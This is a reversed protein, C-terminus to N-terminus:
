IGLIARLEANRDVGGTRFVMNPVDIYVLERGDVTLQYFSALFTKGGDGREGPKQTGEELKSHRGRATIEVAKYQGTGDDQFAGVWRIMEADHTAAGFNEYAAEHFGGMKYEITIPEDAEGMDIAITGTMGGGRYNEMKRELPPLTVEAVVGALSLGNHFMNMNKLIVPLPM